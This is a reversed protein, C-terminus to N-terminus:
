HQRWSGLPLSCLLCLWIRRLPALYFSLFCHICPTVHSIRVWYLSFSSKSQVSSAHPDMLIQTACLPPLVEMKPSMWLNVPCPGSCGATVPPAKLLLNSQLGGSTGSTEELRGSEISISWNLYYRCSSLKGSSEWLSTGPGTPTDANRLCHLVSANVDVELAWFGCWISSVM